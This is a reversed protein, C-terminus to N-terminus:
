VRIDIPSTVQESTITTYDQAENAGQFSTIYTSGDSLASFKAILNKLFTIETTNEAADTSDSMLKQLYTILQDKTVKNGSAGVAAALAGFSGTINASKKEFLPIYDEENDNSHGYLITTDENDDKKHYIYSVNSNDESTQDVNNTNDNNSSVITLNKGDSSNKSFNADVVKGSRSSIKSFMEEASLLNTSDLTNFSNLSNTSNGASSFM